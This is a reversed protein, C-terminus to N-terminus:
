EKINKCNKKAFVIHFCFHMGTPHTSDVANVVLPTDAQHSTQGPPHTGPPPTQGHPTQGPPRGPPTDWCVTLCVGRGLTQSTPHIGAHLSASVGRHVSHCVPTFVNSQWLKTASPLSLIQVRLPHTDM